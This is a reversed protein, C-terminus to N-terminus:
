YQAVSWWVRRGLRPVTIPSVSQTLIQRPRREVLSRTPRPGRNTSFSVSLAHLDQVKNNNKKLSPCIALFRFNEMTVNLEKSKKAGSQPDRYFLLRVRTHDAEVDDTTLKSSSPEIVVRRFLNHNFKLFALDISTGQIARLLYLDNHVGSRSRIRKSYKSSFTLM